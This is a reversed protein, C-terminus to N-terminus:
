ILIKNEDSISREDDRQEIIPTLSIVSNDSREVAIGQPPTGYKLSARVRVMLSKSVYKTVYAAAAPDCLKARSFGYPWEGELLRKPVQVGNEHLLAHLHLAGDKHQEAALMFRLPAGSNKRVRKMYRTFWTSVVKYVSQFEESGHARRALMAARLRHEPALTFTLMWTRTSAKCEEIARLSWMQGRKKRCHLCKRCRVDMSLFFPRTIYGRTKVTKIYDEFWEVRPHKADWYVEYRACFHAHFGESLQSVFELRVPRDCGGSADWFLSYGNPVAGSALARTCFSRMKVSEITRVKM